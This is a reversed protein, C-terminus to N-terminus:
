CFNDGDKQLSSMVGGTGTPPPEGKKKKKDKKDKKDKKPKTLQLLRSTEKEAGQTKSSSAFPNFNKGMRKSGIRLFPEKTPASTSLEVEKSQEAEKCDLDLSSTSPFRVSDESTMSSTRSYRQLQEAQERRQAELRETDRRLTDKDRELRLQAERVRELDKHYQERSRQLQERDEKLQQLRRETQEEAEKLQEERECLLREKVEWERERRRKEELHAAQQKQLTAAEQRQRELSRHKEQEILSSPRSSSASSLSSSSSHRSSSGTLRESLTQRQDEIFSDQQVVVAQLSLLLDHLHTVSSQVQENNRKLLLQLSATAGKKLVGDSETRRLDVSEDAEEKEGNKSINMQHSDFGGFTEARRPLCVPGMSGGAPGIAVSCAAGGLGTNVLSHLSEVEKLADHIIPEGKTFDEPTARFLMRERVAPYADFGSASCDSLERFIHVKEELLSVIQEDKSRLLERIEKVRSEQQRRDEETESPIGEDEDKEMCHMADQIIARWTNREEKSSALVEVMEPKETGATILFLGREENAVERMILNQLSIVTSRQDLSAFVYKQDKEQLFVLVDSLLLSHVEKLRGAANKLQLVGDHLLRRGRVLDEKAFMQGSKMRMISKSDTRSYVEKLRHKKEQENVKSDVATLIEKVLQLAESVSAHELDTEKTHQLIRQILVPYKTIRQTVLLICEPISLRRVITSSMVKKIFNQFRKDKAYLDKYHTVAENHRSCFKGYVKKMREACSGSFQKVLVDGISCVLLSSDVSPGRRQELLQNLFETHTEVLDDLVPFIKELTHLDLQLEKQIGKYYVESMIRLTRVHHFETQYLEYIVDQRKIEDKKLTKLFKKDVTGSWSDAELDKIDSEFEGMLQTDMMETGEDTLSETSANVASNQNLSDTSQSRLKLGKLTVEDLGAINSISISKSLNSHASFISSSRKAQVSPFQDEPTTVTSWRERSSSSLSSVTSGTSSTSKTRGNAASPAADPVMVQLKNKSKACTAVADKCSKHVHMGCNSCYLCEKTQLPKNCHQCGSSAPPCITVFMHSHSSKKDKEKPEREKEGKRDKEKEKGKKIMKNRLYSFTRSIRPGGKGETTSRLPGPEEESISFEVPSPNSTFSGTGDIERHSIAIMSVSKTLTQYQFMGPCSSTMALVQHCPQPGDESYCGTTELAGKERLGSGPLPGQEVEVLGELSYSRNDIPEPEPSALNSPCWSMSRRHVSTKAPKSDESLSKFPSSQGSNMDSAENRAPEWSHRRSPSLSRHRTARLIASSVINEPLQDKREEEEGGEMEGLGTDEAESKWSLRSNSPDSISISPEESYTGLVSSADDTSSWSVRVKQDRDCGKFVGDETNTEPSVDEEEQLCVLPESKNDRPIDTQSSPDACHVPGFDTERQIQPDQLCDGVSRKSGQEEWETSCTGAETQEKDERKVREREKWEEVIDEDLREVSAEKIEWVVTVKAAFEEIQSEKRRMESEICVKEEPSHSAEHTIIISSPSDCSLPGSQEGATLSVSGPQSKSSDRCENSIAKKMPCKNVVIAAAGEEAADVVCMVPPGDQGTDIVECVDATKDSFVKPLALNTDSSSTRICDSGFSDISNEEVTLDLKIQEDSSLELLKQNSSDENEDPHTAAQIAQNSGLNEAQLDNGTELTLAQNTRDPENGNSICEQAFDIKFDNQTRVTQSECQAQDQNINPTFPCTNFSDSGQNFLAPTEDAKGELPNMGSMKTCNNALQQGLEFKAMASAVAVTVVAVATAALELENGLCSSGGVGAVNNSRVEIVERRQLSGIKAEEEKWLENKNEEELSQHAAIQSALCHEPPGQLTIEASGERSPPPPVDATGDVLADSASMPEISEPSSVLPHVPRLHMAASPELLMNNLQLCSPHSVPLEKPSTESPQHHLISCNCDLIDDDILERKDIQSEPKELHELVPVDVEESQAPAAADWVRDNCNHFITTKDESIGESRNLDTTGPPETLTMGDKASNQIEAQNPLQMTSTGPLSITPIDTGSKEEINWDTLQMLTETQNQSEVSSTSSLQKREPGGRKGRKKKKKRFKTSRDGHGDEENESSKKSHAGVEEGSAKEWDPGAEKDRQAGLVEQRQSASGHSVEPQLGTAHPQTPAPSLQPPSVCLELPLQPSDTETSTGLQECDYWISLSEPEEKKVEDSTDGRDCDAEESVTTGQIGEDVQPSALKESDTESFILSQDQGMTETQETAENHHSIQLYEKIKVDQVLGVELVENQTVQDLIIQEVEWKQEEQKQAIATAPSDVTKRDSSPADSDPSTTFDISDKQTSIIERAQDNTALPKPAPIAESVAGKVAAPPSGPSETVTRATKPTRKKNRRNRGSRPATQTAGTEQSQRSAGDTIASPSELHSRSQACSDQAPKTRADVVREENLPSTVIASNTAFNNEKKGKHQTIHRRLQAVDDQLCFDSGDKSQWKHVCQLTLSFTGLKSHHQFVQGDPDIHLEGTDSHACPLFRQLHDQSSSECETSSGQHTDTQGLTFSSRRNLGSLQQQRTSSNCQSSAATGKDPSSEASSEQTINQHNDMPATHLTDRAPHTHTLASSCPGLRHLQTLHKLALVLSEELEICEKPDNWLQDKQHLKSNLMVHATDLALDQVFTLKNQGRKDVAGDPRAVCLVVLVQEYENHGPCVAQLTVRGVRVTSTLHRQSSGSFLLYFEVLEGEEEEEPVADDDELLVTLVCKGYLPAEIPSLKM